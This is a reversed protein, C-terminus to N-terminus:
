ARFGGYRSACFVLPTGERCTARMVRGVMIVHDGGEYTAHTLCEFRALTHPLLTIGEPSRTVELGEFHRDPKVFHRCMEQQDEALIHVAFARATALIQFRRSARSPSWLVLPRDLSLASFSNATLGIPGEPGTTTVVTVGTAFRGLADRFARLSDPGPVFSMEQVIDANM